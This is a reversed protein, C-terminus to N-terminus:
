NRANTVLGTGESAGLPEGYLNVDQGELVRGLAVYADMLLARPTRRLQAARRRPLRPASLLTEGTRASSIKLMPHKGRLRLTVRPRISAFAGSPMSDPVEVATAMAEIIKVAADHAFEDGPRPGWAKSTDNSRQKVEAIYAARGQKRWWRALETPPMGLTYTTVPNDNIIYSAYLDSIDAIQSRTLTVNVKHM